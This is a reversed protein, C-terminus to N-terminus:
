IKPRLGLSTMVKERGVCGLDESALMLVIGPMGLMSDEDNKRKVASLIVLTAPYFMDTLICKQTKYQTPNSIYYM